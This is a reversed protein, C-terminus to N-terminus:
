QGFLGILSTIAEPSPNAKIAAAVNALDLETDILDWKENPTWTIESWIPRGAGYVKIDNGKFGEVLIPDFNTIRYVEFADIVNTDHHGIVALVQGADEGNAKKYLNYIM